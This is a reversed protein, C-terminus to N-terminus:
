SRTHRRYFRFAALAGVLLLTLVLWYDIRPLLHVFLEMLGIDAHEGVHARALPASLLCSAALLTSQLIRSHM